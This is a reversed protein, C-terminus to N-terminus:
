KPTEDLVKREERYSILASKLKDYLMETETLDLVIAQETLGGRTVHILFKKTAIPRMIYIKSGM